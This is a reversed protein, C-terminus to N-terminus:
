NADAQLHEEAIAEAYMENLVDLKDRLVQNEMELAQQEAELADINHSRVPSDREDVLVLGSSPHSYGVSPFKGLIWGGRELDLMIRQDGVRADITDLRLGFEREREAASM